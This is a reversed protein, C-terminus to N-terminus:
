PAKKWDPVDMKAATEILGRIVSTRETIILTNSKPEAVFSTYTKPPSLYQGFVQQIEEASRYKFNFVFSVLREHVPLAKPDSIVPVGIARANKGTGTVEVTDPAIQTISFGDSFLTREIIDIAKERPLGGVDDISVKGQVFNDRVVKLHTLSAYQELLDCVDVVRCSPTSYTRPSPGPTESSAKVATATPSQSSGSNALTVVIAATLIHQAHM